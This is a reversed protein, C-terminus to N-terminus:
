ERRPKITITPRRQQEDGIWIQHDSNARVLDIWSKMFDQSEDIVYTHKKIPNNQWSHFHAIPYDDSEADFNDGVFKELLKTFVLFGADINNSVRLQDIVFAALLTKGSGACGTLVRTENPNKLVETLFSLQEKTNLDALTLGGWRIDNNM